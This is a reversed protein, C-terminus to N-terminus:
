PLSLKPINVQCLVCISTEYTSKFDNLFLSQNLFFDIMLKRSLEFNLKVQIMGIKNTQISKEVVLGIKIHKELVCNISM